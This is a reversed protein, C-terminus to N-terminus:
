DDHPGPAIRGAAMLISHCTQEGGLRQWTAPLSSCYRKRRRPTAVQHTSHLMLNTEGGWRQWKALLSSCYEVVMRHTQAKTKFFLAM